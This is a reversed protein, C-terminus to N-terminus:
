INYRERLAFKCVFRKGGVGSLRESGCLELRMKVWSQQNVVRSSWVVTLEQCLKQAPRSLDTIRFYTFHSTRCLYSHFKRRQSSLSFASPEYEVCCRNTLLILLKCRSYSGCSYTPHRCRDPGDGCTTSLSITCQIYKISNVSQTSQPPYSVTSVSENTNSSEAASGHDLQYHMPGYIVM